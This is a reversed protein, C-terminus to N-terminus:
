PVIGHKGALRRQRGTISETIPPRAIPTVRVIFQSFQQTFEPHIINREIHQHNIHVPMIRFRTFSSPASPGPVFAQKRIGSTKKSIQFLFPDLQGKIQMRSVPKSKILFGIPRYGGIYAHIRFSLIRDRPNSRILLQHFSHEFISKMRHLLFPYVEPPEVPLLKRIILFHVTQIIYPPNIIDKEGLHFSVASGTRHEIMTPASQSIM